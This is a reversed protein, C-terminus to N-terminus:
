KLFYIGIYATGDHCEFSISNIYICLTEVMEKILCYGKIACESQYESAIHVLIMNDQVEYKMGFSNIKDVIEKIM